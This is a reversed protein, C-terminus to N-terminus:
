TLNNFSYDGISQKGAENTQTSSIQHKFIMYHRIAHLYTRGIFFAKVFLLFQIWIFLTVIVLISSFKTSVKM